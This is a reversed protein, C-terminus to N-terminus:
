PIATLEKPCAFGYKTLAICCCDFFSQCTDLAKLIGSPSFSAFLNVLFVNASDTIKKDEMHDAVKKNHEECEEYQTKQQSEPDNPNVIVDKSFKPVMDSDDDAITEDCDWEKEINAKDAKDPQELADEDDSKVKLLEENRKMDEVVENKNKFQRCPWCGTKKSLIEEM